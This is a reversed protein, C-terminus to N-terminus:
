YEIICKHVFSHMAFLSLFIPKIRILANEISRLREKPEDPHRSKFGRGRLGSGLARGLQAM